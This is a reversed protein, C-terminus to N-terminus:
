RRDRPRRPRSARPAPWPLRRDRLALGGQREEREVGRLLGRLVDLRQALPLGRRRGRSLPPLKALASQLDGTRLHRAVRLTLRPPPEARRQAARARGEGAMRR